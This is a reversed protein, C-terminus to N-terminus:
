IDPIGLIIVWQINTSLHDVGGKEYSTMSHGVVVCSGLPVERPYSPLIDKINEIDEKFNFVRGRGDFVPVLQCLETHFM